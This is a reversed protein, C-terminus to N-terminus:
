VFFSSGYVIRKGYVKLRNVFPTNKLTGGGLFVNFIHYIKIHGITWTFWDWVGNYRHVGVVKKTTSWYDAWIAFGESRRKESM